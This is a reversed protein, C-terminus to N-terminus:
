RLAFLDDVGLLRRCTFGEAYRAGIYRGFEMARAEVFRLFDPSSIYTQPEDADYEENHFQSKYAMVAAVKADWHETVDVVIDPRIHHDQIFQLALRPRHPAQETGDEGHTAIKRLGALFVADNVLDGARKHDPHRDYLANMIVIEPRHKRISAIVKLQHAEDNRFFGDRMELNERVALGMIGAADRAESERMAPTGRTGLEGRTLDVIGVRKGMAIHKIITGSAGLEADDPHVAIVLMDLRTEDTM